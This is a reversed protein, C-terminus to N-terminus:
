TNSDERDIRKAERLFDWILKDPSEFLYDTERNRLHRHHGKGAENDYRLLCEGRRVYALRYKYAHSSGPLPQALRWLVLEAFSEEGFPVRQRVMLIAKMNAIIGVVRRQSL